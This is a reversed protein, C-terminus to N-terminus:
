VLHIKDLHSTFNLYGQLSQQSFTQFDDLHELYQCLIETFWSNKKELDSTLSISLSVVAKFLLFFPVKSLIGVFRTFSTDSIEASGNFSMRFLSTIVCFLRGFLRLSASAVGTNLFCSTENNFFQLGTLTRGNTDLTQSFIICFCIKSYM